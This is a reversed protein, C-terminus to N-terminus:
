PTVVRYYRSALNTAGTDVFPIPSTTATFNTLVVWANSLTLNTTAQISYPLNTELVVNFGFGSGNRTYPGTFAFLAPGNTAAVSTSFESTDGTTGDTATTAVFQGAFNGTTSFLFVGNGTGDTTLGTSGMYVKGQGHGSPDDASNRYFDIDFTRNPTSNLTGTVATAGGSVSAATIVPYNQLDNPGSAVGVHNATVGFGDETGGALNIGLKANNFIANGRITDGITSTDYVIVGEAGSYAIINGAGAGTLDYGIINGVAGSQIVVGQGGNGMPTVGDAAVGIDNGQIRNGMTGPDSIFVGYSSNASIVNGAGAIVGGIQNTQASDFLTLGQQQNPLPNLGSVDAGIYNGQILNSVTGPNAIYVGVGQNGSIINRTAANPAGIINGVAGSVVAVGSELNPVAATGNITTGVYNGFVQNGSTGADTIHVGDGGNGSIINRAAPTNGGVLNGSSNDTLYVGSGGNGLAALGNTTTGILNGQIVNGSTGLNGAGVGNGNGSIL